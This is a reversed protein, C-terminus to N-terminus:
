PSPAIPRDPLSKLLHAEEDLEGPDFPDFSVPELEFIRAQLPGSVPHPAANCLSVTRGPRIQPRLRQIM